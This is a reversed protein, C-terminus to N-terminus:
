AAIRPTPNETLRSVHVHHASPAWTTHEPYNIAIEGFGNQPLYPNTQWAAYQAGWDASIPLGRQLWIRLADTAAGAKDTVTLVFVSGANTVLWPAYVTGNKFRQNQYHGGRLSQRAYYHSLTFGQKSLAAFTDAYAAHLDAASANETLKGPRTLLATTQLTLFIKQGTVLAIVNSSPAATVASVTVHAKTKGLGVLGTQLVKLLTTRASRQADPTLASIAIRARWIHPQPTKEDGTPAREHVVQDYAFLKGEAAARTESEIATRVRLLHAPTAWGFHHRLSTEAGLLDRPVHPPSPPDKWDLAFLPAALAHGEGLVVPESEAALDLAIKRENHKFEVLSEPLARPRLASHACFAHNFVIDDFGHIASPNGLGLAILTDAFAGKLANGPIIDSGNFLNDRPSSQTVLFPRDLHLALEVCTANEPWSLATTPVPAHVVTVKQVVGFGVSRDAGFNPVLRLAGELETRVNGATTEDCVILADGTFKLLAGSPAPQEIVQLAGEKTAGTIENKSIRVFTHTTPAVPEIMVLDGINIQKRNPALSQGEAVKGLRERLTSFGPWNNIEELVRGQVLTGPLCIRGLHDRLLPSDIGLRSPESAATNFPATLEITIHLRYLQNGSPQLAAATNM